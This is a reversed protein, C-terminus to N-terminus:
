MIPLAWNQCHFVGMNSKKRKKEAEEKLDQYDIDSLGLM